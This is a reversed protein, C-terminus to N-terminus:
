YIQVPSELCDNLHEFTSRAFAIQDFLKSCLWFSKGNVEYIVHRILSGRWDIFISVFIDNSKSAYRQNELYGM